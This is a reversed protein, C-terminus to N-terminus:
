PTSRLKSIMPSAISCQHLHAPARCRANRLVRLDDGKALDQDVAVVQHVRRQRPAGQLCLQGHGVNGGVAFFRGPPRKAIQALLPLLCSSLGSGIRGALQGLKSDGRGYDLELDSRVRLCSTAARPYLTAAACYRHGGQHDLFLCVLIPCSSVKIKWRM